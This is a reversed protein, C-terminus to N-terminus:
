LEVEVCKALVELITANALMRWEDVGERIESVVRAAESRLAAACDDVSSLREVVLGYQAVGRAAPSQLAPIMGRSAVLNECEALCSDLHAQFVAIQGELHGDSVGVKRM